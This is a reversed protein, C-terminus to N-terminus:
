QQSSVATGSPNTVVPKKKKPEREIHVAAKWAALKAPDDKLRQRMIPDLKRVAKISSAQRQTIHCGCPARTRRQDRTNYAGLTVRAARLFAITAMARCSATSKHRQCVPRILGSCSPQTM